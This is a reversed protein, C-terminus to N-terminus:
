LHVLLIHAFLKQRDVFVQFCDNEVSRHKKPNNPFYKKLVNEVIKLAIFNATNRKNAQQHLLFLSHHQWHRRWHKLVQDVDTRVDDQDVHTQVDVQDVAHEVNPPCFIWDVLNKHLRTSAWSGDHEFIAAEEAAEPPRLIRVGQLM